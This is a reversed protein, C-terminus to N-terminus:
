PRGRRFLLARWARTLPGGATWEALEARLADREARLRTRDQEAAEAQDEAAALATRLTEVEGELNAAEENAEAEAQRATRAAAEAADARARERELAARLAAAEGEARGLRERLAALEEAQSAALNRADRLAAADREALRDLAARLEEIARATPDPETPL